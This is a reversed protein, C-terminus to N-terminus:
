ISIYKGGDATRRAAIFLQATRPFGAFCDTHGSRWTEARRRAGFHSYESYGQPASPSGGAPARRSQTRIRRPLAGSPRRPGATRPDVRGREHDRRHRRRGGTGGARRRPRCRNCRRIVSAVAPLAQLPRSRNCRGNGSAVAPLAQLPRAFRALGCGRPEAVRPRVAERTISRGHTRQSCCAGGRGCGRRGGRAAPLCARAALEVPEAARVDGM